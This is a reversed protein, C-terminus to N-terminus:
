YGIRMSSDTSCEAKGRMSGGWYHLCGDCPGDPNVACRLLESRANYACTTDGIVWCGNLLTRETPLSTQKVHLIAKHLHYRGLKLHYQHRRVLIQYTQGNLELYTGPSFSRDLKTQSLVTKSDNLLIDTPLSKPEM